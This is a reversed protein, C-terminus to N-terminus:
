GASPKADTFPQPPLETWRLLGEWAPLGDQLADVPPRQMQGLACMRPAVRAPLLAGLEAHDGVGAVGLCKLHAGLPALKTRLEPLGDIAVIQLNRYGPSVRLPGSEEFSVSFDAGEHLVGRMAGIGRWGLQASAASLPLAGRPLRESLRLLETHVLEAFREPSVAGAREVWAVHPSLCGRQDYAAVDLALCGAHHQALELSDLARRAVYAAGLGHGHGLFSASARLQARIASLTRDSGYVSVADARELLVTTLSDERESDFTIARYARALQPDSETLALELVRALADDHSSAKALVPWGFLLPYGIARAAGIAVNGALVVVCLEGARVRQAGACPARPRQELASLAEFTLPALAAELAWEIMPQSLGSSQALADRAKQGLEGHPRAIASFADALWRARRTAGARAILEGADVVQRALERLTGESAPM